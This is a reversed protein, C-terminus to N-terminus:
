RAGGAPRAPGHGNLGSIANQLKALSVSLIQATDASEALGKRAATVTDAAPGGDDTGLRGAAEEAALWDSLQTFLQQMRWAASSLDAALLYVTSPFVLGAPSHSGTAYNLFRIAEAALDAADATHEDAHPGDLRAQLQGTLRKPTMM